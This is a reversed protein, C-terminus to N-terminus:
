SQLGRLATGNTAARRQASALSQYIGARMFLREPRFRARFRAAVVETPERQESVNRFVTPIASLHSFHVLGEYEDEDKGYCHTSVLTAGHSLLQSFRFSPPEGSGAVKVDCWKPLHLHISHQGVDSWWTEWANAHNLDWSANLLDGLARQLFAYCVGRGSQFWPYGVFLLRM